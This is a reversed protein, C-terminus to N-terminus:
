IAGRIEIFEIFTLNTHYFHVSDTHFHTIEEGFNKLWYILKM